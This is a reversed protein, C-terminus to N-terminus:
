EAATALALKIMQDLNREREKASLEEGTVLSNSITMIGLAEVHYKAALTYLVATEMEVATIGYSAVLEHIEDSDDYFRDESLVSGVKAKIGEKKASEYAQHLLNFSAPPIFTVKNAFYQERLAATTGAGEALLLENVGLDRSISGATGIRILKKANFGQILENVYISISPIGMGTAQVSVKKGKYTGTYGLAGRVENYLTVETLYNEAVYKARYPDGPLLVTEAIDGKNAGIHTTM